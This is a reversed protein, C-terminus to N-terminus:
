TGDGPLYVAILVFMLESMEGTRQQDKNYHLASGERLGMELAHSEEAPVAAVHWEDDVQGTQALVAVRLM